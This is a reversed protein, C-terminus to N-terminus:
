PCKNTCRSQICDPLVSGAWVPGTCESFDGTMKRCFGEAIGPGLRCWWYIPGSSSSPTPAPAPEPDSDSSCAFFNFVIAVFAVVFLFRNNKM